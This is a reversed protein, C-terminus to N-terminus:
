LAKGGAHEPRRVTGGIVMAAAIILLNKIIYQAETTLTWVNVSGDFITARRYCASPVLVLPMFTGLMQLGMLVIAVRVLPRFAFCVGIAVEWWGILYLMTRDDVLPLWRVTALVLDEAPSIGLPKLIGFLVFIVALAYRLTRVGIKELFRSMAQDFRDVLTGPPPQPSEVRALM